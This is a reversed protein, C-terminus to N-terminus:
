EKILMHTPLGKVDTNAELWTFPKNNDNEIRRIAGFILTGVYKYIDIYNLKYCSSIEQEENENEEEKKLLELDSMLNEEYLKMQEKDNVDIFYVSSGLDLYRCDILYDTEIEGSKVKEFFELRTEISDFGSVIYKFKKKTYNTNQFTKIDYDIKFNINKRSLSRIIGSCSLVKYENINNKDYWQNILNKEEVYDYDCLYINKTWESRCLSDLIATGASGVGYVGIDYKDKPIEINLSDIYKKDFAPYYDSFLERNKRYNRKSILTYYNDGKYKAYINEKEINKIDELQDKIEKYSNANILEIPSVSKDTIFVDNDANKCSHVECYADDFNQSLLNTKIIGKTIKEDKENLVQYATYPNCFKQGTITIEKNGLEFKVDSYGASINTHKLDKFEIVTSIDKEEIRVQKIFIPKDSSNYGLIWINNVLETERTNKNAWLGNGIFVIRYELDERDLEKKLKWLIQNKNM